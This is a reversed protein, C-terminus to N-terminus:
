AHSGPDSGARAKGEAIARLRALTEVNRRRVLPATIASPLWSGPGAVPTEDLTVKTVGADEELTFRVAAEGLPWGRAKLLLWGPPNASTAETSDHLLLPWTGVSHHIRTGEKPWGDDVARIRATGVVWSAYTWGDSLVEFVTPAPVDIIATVSTM